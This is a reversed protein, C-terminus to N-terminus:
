RGYYIERWNIDRTNEIFLVGLVCFLFTVFAVALVILSRKPRSKVIPVRAEELLLLVPIDSQYIAQYQKRRELDQSLSRSSQDYQQELKRIQAVGSNFEELQQQVEALEQELGSIEVNLLNISDRAGRVGSNVFAEVRAKAGRLDTRAETLSATLGEAQSYSNYISYQQRLKALSDSIVALQTEKNRVNGEYTKITQGFSSKILQQATRTTYERAARVMAAALAPDRDELSLEIADRKTKTVEYLGFFKQRVRYPAKRNTSDIQYHRFLHFSDILFDALQDSEAINLLRDVDNANGYLEPELQSNGFLLEPKSQDPSLALFMTNAQYYVPLLLSVVVAGVTAIGCALLIPRKWRFIVRLVDLLSESRTPGATRHEM